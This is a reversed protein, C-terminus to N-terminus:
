PKGGALQGGTMGFRRQRRAYDDLAAFFDDRGFDPWLVDTLYFEAYAIQWLLFNSVRAEGSTRIVLDPDPVDPAYLRARFTEEDIEEPTLGDRVISRAADLIESRGGYSLALILDLREGGRTAEEAEAVARRAAAPLLTRNGVTRLRVGQRRLEPVEAALNRALLGMLAGVEAAPRNWNESSFAFLTLYRVGAELASSVATRVAKVGAMHGRVRGWRRRAAWRGNGDMIVAV